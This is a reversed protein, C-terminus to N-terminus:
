VAGSGRVDGAVPPTGGRVREPGREAAHAASPGAAQEAIARAYEAYRSDYVGRDVDRREGTGTRITVVAQGSPKHLRYSPVPRSRPM